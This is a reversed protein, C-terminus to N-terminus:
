INKANTWYFLEQQSNINMIVLSQANQPFYTSSIFMMSLNTPIKSM